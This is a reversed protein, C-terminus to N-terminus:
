KWSVSITTHRVAILVAVQRNFQPLCKPFVVVPYFVPVPLSKVLCYVSSHVSVLSPDIDCNWNRCSLSIKHTLLGQTTCGIPLGIPLQTTCWLRSRSFSYPMGCRYLIHVCEYTFLYFVYIKLVVEFIRMFRINGSDLTMLRCRRQQHYPDIKMWIKTTAGFSARTKFCLAYHSKLTM